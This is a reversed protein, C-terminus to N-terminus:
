SDSLTGRDIIALPLKYLYPSDYDIEKDYPGLSIFSYNFIQSISLHPERDIQRDRTHLLNSPSM